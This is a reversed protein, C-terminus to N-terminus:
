HAPRIRNEMSQTALIEIKAHKRMERDWEERGKEAAQLMLQRHILPQAENFTMEGAVEKKLLKVIHLGDGEAVIGSVGGAKLHSLAEYMAPLQAKTVTIQRVTFNGAVKSIDNRNNKLGVLAAQAEKRTAADDRGSTFHIDVAIFREPLTFHAKDRNYVDRMEKETFVDAGLKQHLEKTAIMEYQLQREISKKLDAETLANVELFRKYAADTGLRKKINNLSNEVDEPKPAIGEKVAEQVALEQFILFQLAENKVKESIEPSPKQGPGIYKRGFVNMYKILDSMPIATGNVRAVVTKRAEQANKEMAEMQKAQEPSLGNKEGPEKKATCSAALCVTISLMAAMISVIIKRM